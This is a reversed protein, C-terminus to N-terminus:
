SLSGGEGALEIQIISHGAARVPLQGIWRYSSGIVLESLYSKEGRSFFRWVWVWVWVWVSPSEKGKNIPYMGLPASM